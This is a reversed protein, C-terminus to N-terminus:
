RIYPVQGAAGAHPAQQHLHCRALGEAITIAARVGDIVPVGVAAHLTDAAESMGGCGLM